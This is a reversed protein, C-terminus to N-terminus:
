EHQFAEKQEENIAPAPAEKKEEQTEEERKVDPTYVFGLLFSALLFTSSRSIPVLLSSHYSFFEDIGYAHKLPIEDNNFSLFLFIGLLMGVFAMRQCPLGEGKELFRHGHYIGFFILFLLGAFGLFGNQYFITFEFFQTNYVSLRTGSADVANAGFLFTLFNFSRVGGRTSFFAAGIADEIGVILTGFQRPEGDKFLLPIKRLFSNAEGLATDLLFIFTILGALGLLIFFLVKAIKNRKAENAEGPLKIQILRHMGMVLYVLVLFVLGSLFPVLLLDIVGLGAFALLTFFRWNSKEPKMAFLGVGSCALIFAPLKCVALSAERFMFGDLLKGESAIPFVVGDFYYVLGSFRAVYFPGYRFLSYVGSILVLLALSGLIALAIYERKLENIQRFAGGLIFFGIFGLSTILNFLIGYLIASSYYTVWYYSFGLLFLAIFAPIPGKKSRFDMVHYRFYPYLFLAVSIGIVRLFNLGNSGGFGFCVLALVDLALFGLVRELRSDSPKKIVKKEM